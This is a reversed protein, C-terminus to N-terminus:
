WSNERHVNVSSQQMELGKEVTKCVHDSQTVIDDHRPPIVRLHDLHVAVDMFVHHVLVSRSSEWQHNDEVLPLYSGLVNQILTNGRKLWTGLRGEERIILLRFSTQLAVPM